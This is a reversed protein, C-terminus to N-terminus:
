DQEDIQRTVVPSGAQGLSGLINYEIWEIADEETQGEETLAYFGHDESRALLTSALCL